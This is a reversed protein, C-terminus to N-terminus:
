GIYRKWADDSKENAPAGAVIAVVVVVAAAGIAERKENVVGEALVAVVIAVAVAGEVNEKGVADATGVVDFTVDAGAEERKKLGGAVIVDAEVTGGDNAKL